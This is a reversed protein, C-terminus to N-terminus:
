EEAPLPETEWADTEEGEAAEPKGKSGGLFQVQRAVIEVISRKEGDHDDYLRSRITGDIYVQRGKVLYQGCREAQTGWVVINHWQTHQQREGEETTWVEHTALPFTAVARGNPM